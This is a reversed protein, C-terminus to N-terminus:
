RPTGPRAAFARAGYVYGASFCTGADQHQAVCSEAIPKLQESDAAPPKSAPGELYAVTFGADMALAPTVVAAKGNGIAVRASGGLVAAGIAHPLQEHAQVDGGLETMMTRYFALLQGDRATRTLAVVCSDAADPSFYTGEARDEAVSAPEGGVACLRREGGILTPAYSDLLMGDLVRQRQAAVEAPSPQGGAHAGPAAFMGCLLLAATLQRGMPAM